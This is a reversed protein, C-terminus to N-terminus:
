MKAADDPPSSARVLITVSCFASLRTPVWRFDQFTVNREQELDPTAKLPELPCDMEYQQRDERRKWPQM